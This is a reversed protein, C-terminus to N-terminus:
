FNATVSYTLITSYSGAETSASINALYSVTFVTENVASNAFAIIDGSNYAFFGNISYGGSAVGIPATGSPNAGVVPSASEVLSIGFQETGPNSVTAIAGIANITNAGSTLTTGSVSAAFGKSANTAITLTHSTTKASSESLNGFSVSGSGVALTVYQDPYLERFGSTLGYNSSTDSDSFVIAEGISDQLGYNASSDSELGGASFVDAWIIYNDSETVAFSVQAFALILATSFFSYKLIHKIFIKKM